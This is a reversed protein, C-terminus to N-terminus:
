VEHIAEMSRGIAGGFCLYKWSVAVWLTLYSLQYDQTLEYVLQVFKTSADNLKKRVRLYSVKNTQHEPWRLRPTGQGCRQSPHAWRRGLSHLPHLRGCRGWWIWGLTGDSATDRRVYVNLEDLSKFMSFQYLIIKNVSLTFTLFTKEHDPDRRSGLGKRWIWGLLPIFHTWCLHSTESFTEVVVSSVLCNGWSKVIFRALRLFKCGCETCVAPYWNRGAQNTLDGDPALKM